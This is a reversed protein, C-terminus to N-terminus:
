RAKPAKKAKAKPKKKSAAKRKRGQQSKLQGPIPVVPPEIALERLGDELQQCRHQCKAAFKAHEHTM